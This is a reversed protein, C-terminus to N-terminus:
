KFPQSLCSFFLKDFTSLVHNKLTLQLVCSCLLSVHIAKATPKKQKKKKKLTKCLFLRIGETPTPAAAPEFQLPGPSRM